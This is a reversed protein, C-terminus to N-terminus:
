APKRKQLQGAVPALLLAMGIGLLITLGFSHIAPTSSLTLMGFALLTTCAALLVALLIHQDAGKAETFFIGYDIGIGLVLFLALVNFLNLSEGLLVLGVISFTVAIGAPLLTIVARQLGYRWSLLLCTAIAAAIFLWVLRQRYQGIMANVTAVKDIFRIDSSIDTLSRLQLPGRLPIVAAYTGDQVQGLWLERYQAGLPSALWEEVHLERGTEEAFATRINGLDEDELLGAQVFLALADSAYLEQYLRYHEQQQELAPLWASFNIYGGILGERRYQELRPRANEMNQLLTQPDDATVLYFQNSAPVQLIRNVAEEQQQLDRDTPRFQRVDDNVTVGRFLMILMLPPLLLMIWLMVRAKGTSAVRLCHECLSLLRPSTVVSLPVRPFLLVVTLWAGALGFICFLAMQRLGPFPTSALAAYGLLSSALGLSIAPLIAQLRVRGSERPVAFFHFAYDVAVGILSAGFVVTLVHVSGFALRVAVLGLAVGFTLAIFVLGLPRLSRFVLIVIAMILLLSAGGISSVETRATTFAFDAYFLAGNRKLNVERESSSWRSELGALADTVETQLGRDFASGSLTARLLVHFMGQQEYVLFGNENVASQQGAEARAFRYSLLFPDTAVMQVLGSSVPSFLLGLGTEAFQQYRGQRLLQEDEASLLQHRYQQLVRGYDAQQALGAGSAVTDVASLNELVTDLEGAASLAEAKEPSAVLFVLERMSREAYRDFALEAVPDNRDTPLMELIDTQLRFGPILIFFAIACVLMLAMLWWVASGQQRTPRETM